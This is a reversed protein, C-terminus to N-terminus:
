QEKEASQAASPNVGMYARLAEKITAAPIKEGYFCIIDADTRKNLKATVQVTNEKMWQKKAKSDPM